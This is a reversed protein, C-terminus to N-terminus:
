GGQSDRELRALAAEVNHAFRDFRRGRNLNHTRIKAILTGDPGRLIIHGDHTPRAIGGCAQTRAIWVDVKNM